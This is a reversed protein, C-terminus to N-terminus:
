LPCCLPVHTPLRRGQSWLVAGARVQGNLSVEMAGLRPLELSRGSGGGNSTDTGSAKPNIHVSASPWVALLAQKVPVVVVVVVVRACPHSAHGAM